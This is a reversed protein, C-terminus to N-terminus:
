NRLMAMNLAMNQRRRNLGMLFLHTRRKKKITIFTIDYLMKVMKVM